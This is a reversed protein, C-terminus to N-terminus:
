NWCNEVHLIVIVVSGKFDQMREFLASQISSNEIIYGLQPVGIESSDFRVYGEMSGDWIQRMYFNTVYVVHYSLIGAYM